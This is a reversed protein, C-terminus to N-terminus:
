KVGTHRATTNDCCDLVQPPRLGFPEFDKVAKAHRGEQPDRGRRLGNEETKIQRRPRGEYSDVNGVRDGEQMHDM